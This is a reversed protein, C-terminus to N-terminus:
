SGVLDGLSNWGYAVEILEDGGITITQKAVLSGGLREYFLRSPNDELVWVAARQYSAELLSQAVGRMLARGLGRRHEHELVYLAYIEGDGFKGEAAAAPPPLPERLPGGSVFGCIGQATAAVLVLTEPLLLREMWRSAFQQPDLSDIYTQSVIGPYTSKWSAVHVKAIEIADAPSARRIATQM